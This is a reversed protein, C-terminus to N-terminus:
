AEKLRNNIENFRKKENTIFSPAYDMSLIDSIEVNKQKCEEILEATRARTTLIGVLTTDSHKSMGAKAPKWDGILYWADGPQDETYFLDETQVGYKECEAMYKKHLAKYPKQNIAARMAKLEQVAQEGENEAVRTLAKDGLVCTKCICQKAHFCM